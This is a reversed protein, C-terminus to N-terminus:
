DIIYHKLARLWDQACYECVKEGDIDYYYEDQIHEGCKDCIPRKVLWRFNDEDFEKFSKM